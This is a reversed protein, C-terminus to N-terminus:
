QHDVKDYYPVRIGKEDVSISLVKIRNDAIIKIVELLKYKPEDLLKISLKDRNDLIGVLVNVM